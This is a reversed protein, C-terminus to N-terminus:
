AAQAPFSVGCSLKMHEATRLVGKMDANWIVMHNRGLIDLHCTFRSSLQRVLRQVLTDKFALRRLRRCESVDVGGVVSYKDFGDLCLTELAPLQTVIHAGVDVIRFAYLELHKLHALQLAALSFNADQQLSLSELSPIRELLWTLFIDLAPRADACNVLHTNLRKLNSLPGSKSFAQVFPNSCRSASVAKCTRIDLALETTVPGARAAIWHLSSIIRQTLQDKQVRSM